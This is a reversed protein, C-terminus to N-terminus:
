MPETRRVPTRWQAPVSGHPVGGADGHDDHDDLAALAADTRSLEGPTTVSHEILRMTAVHRRANRRDVWRAATVIGLAVAAYVTVGLAVFQPLTM